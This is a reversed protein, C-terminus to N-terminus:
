REGELRGRLEEGLESECTELLIRGFLPSDTGEAKLLEKELGKMAKERLAYARSKAVGLAELVVPETISVDQATAYLLLAVQPKEVGLKAAIRSIARRVQRRIPEDDLFAAPDASEAALETKAISEDGANEWTQHRRGDAGTVTRPKWGKCATIWDTVIDRIRGSASGFLTGCVFDLMRLGEVRIRYAFYSKLPKQSDRAGKLKFYSDFFAVPDDTGVDDRSFGARLLQASMASEIQSRLAAAHDPRCGAVSCIEFWEIWAADGAYRGPKAFAAAGSTTETNVPLIIGYIRTEPPTAGGAGSARPRAMDFIPAAKMGDIISRIHRRLKRGRQNAPQRAPSM